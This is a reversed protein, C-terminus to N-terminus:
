ATDHGIQLSFFPRVFSTVERLTSTFIMMENLESVVREVTHKNVIHHM